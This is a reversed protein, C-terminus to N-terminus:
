PFVVVHYSVVRDGAEARGQEQESGGARGEGLGAGEGVPGGGRGPSGRDLGHGDRGQQEQGQGDGEGEEAAAEQAPLLASFEEAGQQEGTSRPEASDGADVDRLGEGVEQHDGEILGFPARHLDGQM